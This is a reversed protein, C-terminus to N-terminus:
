YLNQQEQMFRLMARCLPKEAVLTPSIFSFTQYTLIILSTSMRWKSKSRSHSLVFTEPNPSLKVQLVYPSSTSQLRQASISFCRTFNSKRIPFIPGVTSPTLTDQSGPYNESWFPFLKARAETCLRFLDSKPCVSGTFDVVPLLLNSEEVACLTTQQTGISTYTPLKVLMPFFVLHCGWCRRWRLRACLVHVFKAGNLSLRTDDIFKYVM